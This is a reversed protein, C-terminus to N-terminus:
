YRGTLYVHIFEPIKTCIQKNGESDYCDIYPLKPIYERIGKPAIFFGKEDKMNLKKVLFERNYLKESDYNETILSNFTYLLKM